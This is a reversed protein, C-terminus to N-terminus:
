YVLIVGPQDLSDQTSMVLLHGAAPCLMSVIHRIDNPSVAVPVRGLLAPGRYRGNRRLADAKVGLLTSASRPNPLREERWLHRRLEYVAISASWTFPTPRETGGVFLLDDLVALRPLEDRGELDISFLFDPADTSYQPLEWSLEWGLLVMRRENQCDEDTCVAFLKDNHIIVTKAGGGRTHALLDCDRATITGYRGVVFTGDERVRLALLAYDCACFLRGQGDTAMSNCRGSPLDIMDILRGDRLDHTYLTGEWNASCLIHDGHIAIATHQIDKDCGKMSSTVVAGPRVTPRAVSRTQAGGRWSSLVLRQDDPTIVAGASYEGRIQTRHERTPLSGPTVKWATLWQKNDISRHSTFLRGAVESMAAAPLQHPDMQDDISVLDPQCMGTVHKMMRIRLAWRAQVVATASVRRFQISAQSLRGVEKVSMVHLFIAEVVDDDLEIAHRMARKLKMPTSAARTPPPPPPPPACARM